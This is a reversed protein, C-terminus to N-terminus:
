VHARGIQDLLTHGRLILFTPVAEIEFSEAIDAQEEAQVQYARLHSSFLVPGSSVQLVLVTTYRKALESVVENM